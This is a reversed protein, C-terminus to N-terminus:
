LEALGELDDEFAGCEARFFSGAKAAAEDEGFLLQPPAVAAAGDKGQRVDAWVGIRVVGEAFCLEPM